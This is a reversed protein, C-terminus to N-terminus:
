KMRENVFKKILKQVESWELWYDYWRKRADSFEDLVQDELYAIVDKKKMKKYWDWDWEDGIDHWTDSILNNVEEKAQKKTPKSKSEKKPTIDEEFKPEWFDPKTYDTIKYDEILDKPFSSYWEEWDEFRIEYWDRVKQIVWKRPNRLSTDIIGFKEGTILGRMQKIVDEKIYDDVKMTISPGYAEDAYRKVWEDELVDEDINPDVWWQDSGDFWEDTDYAEEVPINWVWETNSDYDTYREWWIPKKNEEIPQFSNELEEVKYFVVKKTKPDEVPIYKSRDLNKLMTASVPPLWLEEATYSRVETMQESNSSLNNDEQNYLEQAQNWATENVNESIVTNTPNAWVNRDPITDLPINWLDINSVDIDTIEGASVSRNNILNYLKDIGNGNKDSQTTFWAGKKPTQKRELPKKNLNYLKQALNWSAKDAVSMGGLLALTWVPNTWNILYSIMLNRLKVMNKGDQKVWQEILSDRAEITGRIDNNLEKLDLEKVSNNLKDSANMRWYNLDQAKSQDKVEWSNKYINELIDEAQILRRLVLPHIEKQKSLKRLSEVLGPYRLKKTDMKEIDNALTEAIYWWDTNDVKVDDPISELINTKTEVYQNTADQLGAIQEERSKWALDNKLIIEWFSYWSNKIRAKQSPTLWSNRNAQWIPYTRTLLESNSILNSWINSVWNKINEVISKPNYTWQIPNSISLSNAWEILSQRDAESLKWGNALETWWALLNMPNLAWSEFARWLWESIQKDPDYGSEAINQVLQQLVEEMWEELSSRAQTELWKGLMELIGRKVLMENVEKNLNRTALEKINQATTTEVWWLFKELWLEIVTNLWWVVIAWNVANNYADEYSVWQKTQANILTEFAEQNERAFTDTGMIALWLVPNIISWWIWALMDINWTIEGLSKYWFWKENLLSELLWQKSYYNEIIPDLWIGEKYAQQENETMENFMQVKKKNIWIKEKIRDIDEQSLDKGLKLDTELSFNAIDKPLRYGFKALSDWWNRWNVKANKIAQWWKNERVYIEEALDNLTAPTESNWWLFDRFNQKATDWDQRLSDKDLMWFIAKDENDLQLTDIENVIQQIEPSLYALNLLLDNDTMGQGMWEQRAEDVIQYLTTYNNLYKIWDDSLERWNGMLAKNISEKNKNYIDLQIQADTKKLWAKYLITDDWNNLYNLILQEGDPIETKMAEIIQEDPYDYAFWKVRKATQSLDILKMNYEANKDGNLIAQGNESATKNIEEARKDLWHKNLVQPYYYQYLQDMMNVKDQGTYGKAVVMDELKKYDAEDFWPYRSNYTPLNLNSKYNNISFNQWKNQVREVWSKIWGGVWQWFKQSLTNQPAMLWGATKNVDKRSVM